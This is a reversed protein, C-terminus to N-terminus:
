PCCLRECAGLEGTDGARYVVNGEAASNAEVPPWTSGRFLLMTTLFSKRLGEQTEAAMADGLSKDM